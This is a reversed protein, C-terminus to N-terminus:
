MLQYEPTQLMANFLTELQGLRAELNTDNDWRDTWETETGADALMAEKFYALRQVTLDGDTDFSLNESVPLFYTAVAIIFDDVIRITSHDFNAVVFEYINVQDPDQEEQRESNFLTQSIYDYRNTLYNTSIWNRNFTPYQHYAAYGAVEFPQYYDMGQNSMHNIFSSAAEYYATFETTYDPLTIDFARVVGAVMDLPSKILSGFKNDIAGDEDEYFYTSTFLAELVPQIKFENAVFVEAMEAIIGDTSGDKNEMSEDIQHYVFFRYLERCIHLPTEEQAYMLDVFQSIEDLVSAETDNSGNMLQADPTVSGGGLRDSFTKTGSYHQNANTENGKVRGRPIDTDEDITEYSRDITFGSLVQAGTIVDEETFYHYDGEFEAEPTYGELGKGVAYLELLERSYNENVNGKVNFRGDLYVLMANDVCIKKTLEKFNLPVVVIEDEVEPDESPIIRERDAKDFAFMRFLQQQFYLDAADGGVEEINTTFHTHLFFVLRERFIYPIKVAEDIGNGIMQGFHWQKFYQRLVFAQTDTAANIWETGTEAEVPVAPEPLTTANLSNFLVEVAQEATYNSFTDIEAISGGFCTRRLLHAARRRGLIGTLKDDLSM